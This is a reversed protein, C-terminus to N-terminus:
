ENQLQRDEIAKAVAIKEEKTGARDVFLTDAFTTMAKIGPM